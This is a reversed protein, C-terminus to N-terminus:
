EAAHDTPGRHPLYFPPTPCSFCPYHLAALAALPAGATHCSDQLTAMAGGFSVKWPPTLPYPTSQQFVAEEETGRWLLPSALPRWGTPTPLGGGSRSSGQAACGSTSPAAAAEMLHSATLHLIHKSSSSSSKIGPGSACPGAACVPRAAPRHASGGWQKQLLLAITDHSFAKHYVM